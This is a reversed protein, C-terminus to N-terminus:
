WFPMQRKFGIGVEVRFKACTKFRDHGLEILFGDARDRCYPAHILGIAFDVLSQGVNTRPGAFVQALREEFRRGEDVMAGAADAFRRLTADVPKEGEIRAFHASFTESELGNKRSM